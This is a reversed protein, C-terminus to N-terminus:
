HVGQMETKNRNVEWCKSCEIGFIKKEGSYSEFHKKLIEVTLVHRWLLKYFPDLNVGLNSLYGIVSSNSVYTLALENPEISIVRNEEEKLREFLASKGSGTRGLVIQRIDEKNKLIKYEDTDVFCERLFEGDDEASAFGITDTSKFKFESKQAKPKAM